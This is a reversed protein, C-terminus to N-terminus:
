SRLAVRTASENRLGIRGVQVLNWSLRADIRPSVNPRFVCRSRISSPSPSTPSPSSCAPSSFFSICLVLHCLILLQDFMIGDRSLQGTNTSDLYQSISDVGGLGNALLIAVASRWYRAERLAWRVDVFAGLVCSSPRNPVARRASLPVSSSLLRKRSSRHPSPPFRIHHSISIAFPAFPM